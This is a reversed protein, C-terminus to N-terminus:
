VSRARIPVQEDSLGKKSASSEATDREVTTGAAQRSVTLDFDLKAESQPMKDPM